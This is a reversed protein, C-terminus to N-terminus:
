QLLLYKNAENKFAPIKFKNDYFFNEFIVNRNIETIPNEVISKVTGLGLAKKRQLM